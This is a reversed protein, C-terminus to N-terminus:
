EIVNFETSIYDSSDLIIEENKYLEEVQKVADNIDTADVEVTRQLIETIEVKIKM